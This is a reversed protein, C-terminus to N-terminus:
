IPVYRYIELTPAVMFMELVGALTSLFVIIVPSAM